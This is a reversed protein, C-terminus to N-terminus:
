CLHVAHLWDPAAHSLCASFFNGRHREQFLCVEGRDKSMPIGLGRPEPNQTTSKDEFRLDRAESQSECLHSGQDTNKLCRSFWTVLIASSGGESLRNLPHEAM